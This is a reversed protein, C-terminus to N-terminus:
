YITEQVIKPTVLIVRIIIGRIVEVPIGVLQVELTVVLIERIIIIALQAVAQEAVQELPQCPHIEVAPQAVAQEVVRELTQRQHVEVALLVAVQHSPEAEM